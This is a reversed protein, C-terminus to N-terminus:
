TGTILRATVVQRHSYERTQRNFDGGCTIITITPEATSAVIQNWPGNVAHVPENTAIRYKYTVGKVHVEIIDGTKLRNLDWLVAECPAPVTGNKCAKVGSDVHGALVMNGNGPAGGLGPWASFDYYAIDDPGDPDPMVGNLGVTRYTLPADVGFAPITFRDGPGIETLNGAVATPRNIDITAEPTPMQTQLGGSDAPPQSATRDDDGGGGFAVAIVIIGIVIAAAVGGLIPLPISSFMRSLPNGDGSDRYDHGPDNDQVM